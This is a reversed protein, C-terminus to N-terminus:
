DTRIRGQMQPHVACFFFLTEGAPLIVGRSTRENKSDTYWSDGIAETSIRTDWGREGAEIDRTTVQNEDDLGHAGAVAGCIGRLKFCQRLDAKETPLDDKAVISFTHPGFDEARTKNLIGLQGGAPITRPAVFAVKNHGTQEIRVTADLAREASRDAIAPTGALVAAALTAATAGGITRSLRGQKRHGKM